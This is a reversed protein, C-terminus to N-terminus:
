VRERCSARGIQHKEAEACLVRSVLDSGGGTEWGIIYTVPRDPYAAYGATPAAFVAACLVLLLVCSRRFKM